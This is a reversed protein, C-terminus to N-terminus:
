SNPGAKRRALFNTTRFQEHTERYHEVRSLYGSPTIRCLEFSGHEEFFYFFDQFFSRSDINCGGFEFTILDVKGARILQEAGALVGLEHGEVDIKLLDIHEIGQKQCYADLTDIAVTESQTMSIDFHNLRRDYLSAIGSADENSYLTMEGQQGGLGCNNLVVRQDSGHASRLAAFTVASPEFAHVRVSADGLGGLLMSLFQGRNAGVDFVCFPQGDAGRSQRLLKVVVREGSSEAVAGSGVGMLWQMAVVLRELLRQGAANATFAALATKIFRKM